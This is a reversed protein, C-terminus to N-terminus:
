VFSQLRHRRSRRRNLQASSRWKKETRFGLESPWIKVYLRDGESKLSRAFFTAFVFNNSSDIHLFDFCLFTPPNPALATPPGLATSYLHFHRLPMSRDNRLPTLFLLRMRDRNM